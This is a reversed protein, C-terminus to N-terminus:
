QTWGTNNVWRHVRAAGLPSLVVAYDRSGNTLYIAGGADGVPGVDSCPPAATANESFRRPLGDSQFVVWSADGAPSDADTFSAGAAQNGSDGADDPAATGNALGADTGFSVGRGLSIRHIIEDTDIRCNAAAPAGDNVIVIDSTIGALGTEVDFAVIHNSGSRLAEARALAFADAVDRASSAARQDDSWRGLTAAGIALMVGLVALGIMLELLTM